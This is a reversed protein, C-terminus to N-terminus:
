PCHAGPPVCSNAFTTPRGCGGTVSKLVEDSIEVPGVTSEILEQEQQESLVVTKM